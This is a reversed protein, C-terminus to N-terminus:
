DPFHIAPVRLFQLSPIAQVASLQSEAVPFHLLGGTGLPVPQLSPLRQLVLSMQVLPRQPPVGFTQVGRSWHWLAPVQSRAEPLQEFGRLGEPVVQLSALAQVEPSIQWASPVQEPPEPMVQLSPFIQM